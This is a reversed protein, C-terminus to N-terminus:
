AQPAKKFWIKIFSDLIKAAAPLNGAAKKDEATPFTFHSLHLIAQVFFILIHNHFHM